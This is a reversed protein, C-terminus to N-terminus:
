KIVYLEQECIRYSYELRKLFLIFLKKDFTECLENIEGRTKRLEQELSKKIKEKEENLKAELALFEDFKAREEETMQDRPKEMWEERQLEETLPNEKKEELTNNMMQKLARQGADDENLKRLREEEAKREEEMKRKEEKTMYKQIKIEDVSVKLVYDPQEILNPSAIFPDYDKGM